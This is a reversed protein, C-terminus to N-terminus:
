QVKNLKFWELQLVSDDHGHFGLNDQCAQVVLRAFIKDYERQWDSGRFNPNAMSSAQKSIEAVIM